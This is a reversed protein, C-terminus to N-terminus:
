AMENFFTGLLHGSADHHTYKPLEELIQAFPERILTSQLTKGSAEFFQGFPAKIYQSQQDM